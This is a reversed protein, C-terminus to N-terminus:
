SLLQKYIGLFCFGPKGKNKNYCDAYVDIRVEEDPYRICAFPNKCMALQRKMRVQEEMDEMSDTIITLFPNFGKM